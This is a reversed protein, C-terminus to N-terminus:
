ARAEAWLYQGGFVHEIRAVTFGGAELADGLTDATFYNVHEYFVDQLVRHECDVYFMANRCIDQRSSGPGVGCPDNCLIECSRPYTRHRTATRSTPNHALDLIASQDFFRRSRWAAPLAGGRYSPDFGHLVAPSEAGARLLALFSGQGCGVETIVGDRAPLADLVRGVMENMHKRFAPSYSQDNEYGPGYGIKAPDFAANFTFGCLDCVSLAM